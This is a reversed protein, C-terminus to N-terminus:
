GYREFHRYDISASSCRSARASRSGTSRSSTSDRLQGRVRQHRQLPQRRRDARDRGRMVFLPWDFSDRVGRNLMMAHRMVDSGRTTGDRRAAAAAHAASTAAAATRTAARALAEQLVRMAIPAAYKGGHGGHEVLVVIALEPEDRRRSAPSGRTRQPQYYWAIPCRRRRRRAAARSRRPAPRAPSRCAAQRHAGRVGHREARQGRRVHRRDRVRPAAPRRSAGACARRSSKSSSGDPAEVAECWSRCTCRAATPSRPTCGDRAPDAHRAHRGSRDGHQAHLRRPLARRADERVVRADPRLGRGRHQHRHRDRRRPRLRARAAGLRDLGVQEALQYFYINCSQM